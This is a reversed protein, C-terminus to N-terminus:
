TTKWWPHNLVEHMTFRHQPDMAIMGLILLRFDSSYKKSQSALENNMNAYIGPKGYEDSHMMSRDTWDGTVARYLTIGLAYVDALKLNVYNFMMEPPMHTPTGAWSNMYQMGSCRVAFGLDILMSVRRRTFPLTGKNQPVMINELKVDRHCVNNYHLFYLAEAAMRFMEKAKKEPVHNGKAQLYTKADGGKIYKMAYFVYNETKQFSGVISFLGPPRPKPLDKILLYERGMEQALPSKALVRKIVYIKDKAQISDADTQKYVSTSSHTELFSSSSSSTSSSSSASSASSPPPSSFSSAIKNFFSKKPAMWPMKQNGISCVDTEKTSKYSHLCVLGNWETGQKWPAIKERQKGFSRDLVEQHALHILSATDEPTEQEKGIVNGGDRLNRFRGNFNM